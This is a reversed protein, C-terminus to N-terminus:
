VPVHSRPVAPLDCVHKVIEHLDGGCFLISSIGSAEAAALDTPQDGILVCRDRDLEWCGILDIIMGPAPKRWDSVRRYAPVLAEPHYPCYRIDDITGGARRVEDMMWAHLRHVAPEDYYGRAVGAQNTIVFVHWGAETALRIAKRAGTMWEFRERTGVHGHDVNIVGDRDLFLAPRHLLKPIEHQAKAYDDPIGIDRFYGTAVTGYLLGETALHPLIDELSCVPSLAAVIERDFLYVGANILAPGSAPPDFQIIKDGDCTVVGYRSADDVSRLLLHGMGRPRLTTLNCDFLSDGNCLIFRHDLLHKAHWLAGGTGARIPEKCLVIQVQRPLYSQLAAVDFCESLHGTLLIFEEIGYRMLERLQWALFPRDGCPLLPKPITATLDGLRSGLGGALIVCQTVCAM